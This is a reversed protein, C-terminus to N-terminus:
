PAPAEDYPTDQTGSTDSTDPTGPTDTAVTSCALAGAGLLCAAVVLVAGVGYTGASVSAMVVVLALGAATALLWLGLRVALAGRGRAPAIALLVWSCVPLLLVVFGTGSPLGFLGTRLAGAAELPSVHSLVGARFWPVLMAVTWAVAAGAWLAAGLLERSRRDDAPPDARTDLHESM